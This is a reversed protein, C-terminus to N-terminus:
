DLKFEITEWRGTSENRALELLADVLERDNWSVERNALGRFALPLKLDQGFPPLMIVPRKLGHACELQFRLQQAHSALLAGLAVVAEASAIQRRFAEREPESNPEGPVPSLASSNSYRFRRAGELYEFVRLYDDDEQWAHTVFIRVPERSDM